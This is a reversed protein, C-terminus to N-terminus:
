IPLPRAGDGRQSAYLRLLVVRQHLPFAHEPAPILHHSLAGLRDIGPPQLEIDFSNHLNLLHLM